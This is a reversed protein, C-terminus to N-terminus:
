TGPARAAVLRDEPLATGLERRFSMAFNRQVRKYITTCTPYQQDVWGFQKTVFGFAEPQNSAVVM